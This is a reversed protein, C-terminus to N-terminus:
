NYQAKLQPSLCLLGPELERQQEQLVVLKHNVEYIVKICRQQAEMMLNYATLTSSM